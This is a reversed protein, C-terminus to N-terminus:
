LLEEYDLQLTIKVEAVGRPFLQRTFEANIM